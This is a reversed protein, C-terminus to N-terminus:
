SESEDPEAYASEIRAGTDDCYLGGDEYNVACAVVRWGDSPYGRAGDRISETVIRLNDRVSDFSLAAGDDTIFYLPYGGPWAYPGARLTARLEATNSIDAYHRRYVPRVLSDHPAAWKGNDSYLAGDTDSVFLRPNM